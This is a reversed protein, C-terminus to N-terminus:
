GSCTKSPTTVVSALPPAEHTAEAEDPWIYELAAALLEV